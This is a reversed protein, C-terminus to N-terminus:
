AIHIIVGDGAVAAKIVFRLLDSFSGLLWRPPSEDPVAPRTWIVDACIDLTTLRAPADRRAVDAPMLASLYEAFRRVDQPRLARAQSDADLNEDGRVLYCAPEKGDTATGTVLFHLGHRGREAGKPRVTMVRPAAAADIGIDCDALASDKILREIEANTARWLTCTV